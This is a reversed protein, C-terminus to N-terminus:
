VGYRNKEDIEFRTETEKQFLNGRAGLPPIKPGNQSSQKSGNIEFENSQVTSYDSLLCLRIRRTKMKFPHYHSVIDDILRAILSIVVVNCYNISIPARIM